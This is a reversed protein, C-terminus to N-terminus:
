AADLARLYAREAAEIKRTIRRVTQGADVMAARKDELTRLDSQMARLMYLRAGETTRGSGMCYGASGARSRKYGHRSMRGDADVKFARQCCPCTATRNQDATTM